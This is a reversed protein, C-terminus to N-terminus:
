KNETSLYLDLLNKYEQIKGTDDVQNIRISKIQLVAYLNDNDLSLTATQGERQIVSARKLSFSDAYSNLIKEESITSFDVGSHFFVMNARLVQGTVANLLLTVEVNEARYTITWYGYLDDQLISEGVDMQKKCLTATIEEYKNPFETITDKVNEYFKNLWQEGKVIAEKMSLQRGFPEQPEEKVTSEIKMLIQQLEEESLRTQPVVKNQSNNEDYDAALVTGKQSLIDNQKKELFERMFFLGVLAAGCALMVGFVTICKGKNMVSVTRKM